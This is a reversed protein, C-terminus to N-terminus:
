KGGQRIAAAIRVQQKAQIQRHVFREAPQDMAEAVQADVERQEDRGREYIALLPALRAEVHGIVIDEDPDTLLPVYERGVGKLWYRQTFKDPEGLPEYGIKMLDAILKARRAELAAPPESPTAPVGSGCTCAQPCLSCKAEGDSFRHESMAYGVREPCAKFLSCWPWHGKDKPVPHEVGNKMYVYEPSAPVTM